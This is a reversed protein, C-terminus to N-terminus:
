KESRWNIINELDLEEIINNSFIYDDIKKSKILGIIIEIYIEDINRSIIDEIKLNINLQTFYNINNKIINKNENHIEELKEKENNDEEDYNNTVKYNNILDIIIKSLIIQRCIKNDNNRQLDNVKNILDISYSYNILTLNERILLNLYFYFSISESYEVDIIEEKKYLEEHVKNRNLYFFIFSKDKKLELLSKIENYDSILKSIPDKDSDIIAM